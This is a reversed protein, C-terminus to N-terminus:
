NVALLTFYVTFKRERERKCNYRKEEMEVAKCKERERAWVCVFM